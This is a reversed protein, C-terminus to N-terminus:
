LISPPLAPILCMLTYPAPYTSTLRPPKKANFYISFKKSHATRDDFNELITLNRGTYEIVPPAPPIEPQAVASTPEQSQGPQQLLLHGQPGRQQQM